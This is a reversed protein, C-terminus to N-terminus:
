QTRKHAHNIPCFNAPLWALVNEDLHELGALAGSPNDFFLTQNLDAIGGFNVPENIFNQKCVGRLEPTIPCSLLGQETEKHSLYHLGRLALRIGLNRIFPKTFFQPALVTVM